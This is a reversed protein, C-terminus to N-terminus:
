SYLESFPDYGSNKNWIYEIEISQQEVIERGLIDAIFGLTMDIEASM